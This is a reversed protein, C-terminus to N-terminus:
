RNTATELEFVLRKNISEVRSPDLFDDGAAFGTSFKSIEGFHVSQGGGSDDEDNDVNGVVICDVAGEGSPESAKM